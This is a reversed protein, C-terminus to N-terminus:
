IDELGYKGYSGRSYTGLIYIISSWTVNVM